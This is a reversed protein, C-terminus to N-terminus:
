GSLFEHCHHDIYPNVFYEDFADLANVHSIDGPLIGAYRPLLHAGRAISKLPIVQVPQDAEPKVIWMGTEPDRQGSVSLLWSVLACPVNEDSQNDMFSFLLHVRAILMGGVTGPHDEDVAVFVTDHRPYGYWSPTSRIRQRYMGCSGCLDSPAYFRSIASHFVYIKGYFSMQEDIDIPVERTPHRISYLFEKFKSPFDPEDIYEALCNLQKPYRQELLCICSIIL